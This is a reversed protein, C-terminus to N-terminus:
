QLELPFLFFLSVGVEPLLFAFVSDDDSEESLLYKIMNVYLTTVTSYQWLKGYDKHTIGHEVM